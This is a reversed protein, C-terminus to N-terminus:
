LDLIEFRDNILETKDVPIQPGDYLKKIHSEHWLGNSEEFEYWGDWNGGGVVRVTFIYDVKELEDITESYTDNHSQIPNHMVVKQGVKYGLSSYGM